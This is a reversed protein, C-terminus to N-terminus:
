DPLPQLFAQIPSISQGYISANMSVDRSSAAPRTRRDLWAMNRALLSFPRSKELGKIM